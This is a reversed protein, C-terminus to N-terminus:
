TLKALYHLKSSNHITHETRTYTQTNRSAVNDRLACTPTSEKLGKRFIKTAWHWFNSLEILNIGFILTMIWMIKFLTTYLIFYSVLLNYVILWASVGLQWCLLLFDYMKNYSWQWLTVPFLFVLNQAPIRIEAWSSTKDYLFM